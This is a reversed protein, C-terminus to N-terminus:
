KPPTYFENVMERIAREEEIWQTWGEATNAPDFKNQGVFRLGIEDGGYLSYFMPLPSAQFVACVAERGTVEEVDITLSTDERFEAPPQVLDNLAVNITLKQGPYRQNLAVLLERIATWASVNQLQLSIKRDLLSYTQDDDVINPFVCVQGNVMDWTYLSRSQKVFKDLATRCSEGKAVGFNTYFAPQGDVRYDPNLEFNIPIDFARELVDIGYTLLLRQKRHFELDVVQDQALQPFDAVIGLLPDTAPSHAREARATGIVGTYDTGFAPQAIAAALSLVALIQGITRVANRISPRQRITSKLL